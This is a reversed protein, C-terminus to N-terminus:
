FSLKLDKWWVFGATLALAAVAPGLDLQVITYIWVTALPPCQKLNTLWSAHNIIYIMRSGVLASLLFFFFQMRRRQKYRTALFQVDIHVLITSADESYFIFISMIPVGPIMRDMIASLSANKGYQHLILIEMMLLLFSFPIILLLANFVEDGLPTAEDDASIPPSSLDGEQSLSKLVGSQNILRWQEDESLKILPTSQTPKSNGKRQHTM